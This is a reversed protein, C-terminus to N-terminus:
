KFGGLLKYSEYQMPCMTKYDSYIKDFKAKNSSQRNKGLMIYGTYLTSLKQCDHYPTNTEFYSICGFFMNDMYADMDKNIKDLASLNADSGVNSVSSLGLIKLNFLEMQAKAEDPSPCGASFVSSGLGIIVLSLFLKKMNGGFTFVFDIM